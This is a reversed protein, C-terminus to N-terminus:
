VSVEPLAAELLNSSWQYLCSDSCFLLPENTEFMSGKSVLFWDDPMSQRMSAASTNPILHEKQCTDCRYGNIRM